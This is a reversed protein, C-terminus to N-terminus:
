LAPLDQPDGRERRRRRLPDRRREPPRLAFPPRRQHRVHHGPIGIPLGPQRHGRSIRIRPGVQDLKPHREGIRQGIPRRDMSRRRRRQLRPRRQRRRQLDAADTESRTGTTKM